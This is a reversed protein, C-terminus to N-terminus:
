VSIRYFTCKNEGSIVFQESYEDFFLCKADPYETIFLQGKRGDSLIKFVGNMVSLEYNTSFFTCNFCQRGVPLQLCM